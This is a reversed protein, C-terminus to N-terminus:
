FGEFVGLGFLAFDYKVPDKSDFERLVSDLEVLAKADNQKRKLLGLKRAVNGSHVDLPCSLQSPSISKWIGFDVGANDERVMWRLFMNIRKAASNKLPDSIHKETRQLHEVEFFVAKFKSIGEQLRKGESSFVSELGGYNRYIHQLSKIFEICDYGNFTRHVFPMLKELDREDHNMVFDFPSQDLLNMLRNANNIISKRNGWAITATLFGSIEIDEKISFQHPIQIPDSEIFDPNNYQMVKANLFEILETKTL